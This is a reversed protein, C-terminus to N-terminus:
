SPAEMIYKNNLETWQLCTSLTDQENVCSISTATPQVSPRHNSVLIGVDLLM